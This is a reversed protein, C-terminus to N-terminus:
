SASRRLADCGLSDDLPGYGRDALRQSQAVPIVQLEDAGLGAEDAAATRRIGVMQLKRLGVRHTAFDAVFERNWYATGVMALQVPM